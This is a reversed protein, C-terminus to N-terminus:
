IDDRLTYPLAQLQLVAQGVQLAPADQASLQMSIIARHEGQWSAAQAVLGCPQEPERSDFVEQGAALPASSAVVFARRKIVGRFQSRAVVEQGPYCGKKFNVGEISEYNLMQPVFAEQVPQTIRAIGTTIDLWDWHALAESAVSAAAPGPSLQWVRPVPIGDVVADPLRLLTQADKSAKARTPIPHNAIEKMANSAASGALGRLTLEGSADSLKCKARLVFMTLRKAVAAAIDRSCVLLFEEPAAKWLWFSALMRGKASCWAALRLEEDKMLLVDQTLQGQLFSAADAGQVRLISLPGSEGNLVVDFDHKM